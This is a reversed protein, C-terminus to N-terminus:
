MFTAKLKSFSTNQNPVEANCFNPEEPTPVCGNGAPEMSGNYPYLGDYIFWGPGEASRGYSRDDDAAHDPYAVSEIIELDGGAPGQMLYLTDGGNNLSFGATSIGAAAQWAVADSGYFVVTEGPDIIGTLQMRPETVVEDRVWYDQLDVPELGLNIVEIWEDLKFDVQGDHDWDSAPDALIENIQITAGAPVVWGASLMLAVALCSMLLTRM